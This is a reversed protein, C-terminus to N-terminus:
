QEGNNKEKDKIEALLENYRKGDSERIAETNFLEQFRRIATDVYLPEFEIGYCIRHAKEAAILTSGSGLFTDLILDGRNTVDLIADYLMEVPKVTPHMKLDKKHRGFSNVGTYHWINTRYRGNKGLEVNNIHSEKGNKFIFCLEHQSRYLSGMGGTGKDWVCLNIFSTFVKQAAGLIHSAHRWDMFNFHLSGRKTYSACLKFNNELFTTFEKDNMEGSAFAFEKHKIKGSGGVHGQIKVNFPPDQLVMNAKKGNMLKSFTEEELSNGCIIRHKGLVWVDGSNTVIENEPVYPETNLTESTKHEKESDDLLVDLEVTDFGTITIDFDDCLTELEALELKLTDENWGGLENIKNDALRYARKQAESLHSLRIIPVETLGIIKAAEYRGHGAIIESNEDILIPNNFGFQKISASLAQLQKENHIKANNTYAKLINLDTYEVTLINKM